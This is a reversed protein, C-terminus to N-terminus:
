LYKSLKKKLDEAVAKSIAEKNEELWKLFSSDFLIDGKPLDKGVNPEHLLTSIRNILYIIILSLVRKQKEKTQGLQWFQNKRAKILELNVQQLEQEVKAKVHSPLVDFLFCLDAFALFPDVLNAQKITDLHKEYQELALSDQNKSLSGSMESTDEPKSPAKIVNIIEAQSNDAKVLMPKLKELILNYDFETPYTISLKNKTTVQIAVDKFEKLYFTLRGLHGQM